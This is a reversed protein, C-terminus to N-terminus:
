LTPPPPAAGYNTGSFTSRTLLTQWETLWDINAMALLVIFCLNTAASYLITLSCLASLWFAYDMWAICHGPCVFILWNLSAALTAIGTASTYPTFYTFLYTIRKNGSLCIGDLLSCFSMYLYLCAILKSFQYTVALLTLFHHRERSGKIYLNNIKLSM